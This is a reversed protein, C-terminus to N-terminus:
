LNHHLFEELVERTMIYFFQLIKLFVDVKLNLLTIEKNHLTTKSWSLNIKFSLSFFLSLRVSFFVLVKFLM